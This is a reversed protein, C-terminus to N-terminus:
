GVRLPHEPLIAREFWRDTRDTKNGCVSSRQMCRKPEKIYIQGRTCGVWLVPWECKSTVGGAILQRGDKNQANLVPALYTKCADNPNCPPFGCVRCLPGVRTACHPLASVRGTRRMREGLVRWRRQYAHDAYLPADRGTALGAITANHHQWGGAPRHRPHSLGGRIPKYSPQTSGV